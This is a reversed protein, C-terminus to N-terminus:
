HSKETKEAQNPTPRTTTQLNGIPLFPTPPIKKSLRQDFGELEKRYCNLDKIVTEELTKLRAEQETNLVMCTELKAQIDNVDEETEGIRERNHDIEGKQRDLQDNIGRVMASLSKDLGEKNVMQNSINIVESQVKQVTASLHSGDLKIEEISEQIKGLVASYDVDNQKPLASISVVPPNIQAQEPKKAQKAKHPTLHRRILHRLRGTRGKNTNRLQLRKARDDTYNTKGTLGSLPLDDDTDYHSSTDLSQLDIEALKGPLAPTSHAIPPPPYKYPM